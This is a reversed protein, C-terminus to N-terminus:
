LSDLGNICEKFGNLRGLALRTLTEVNEKINFVDGTENSLTSITDIIAKIWDLAEESSRQLTPVIQALKRTEDLTRLQMRLISTVDSAAQSLLQSSQDTEM